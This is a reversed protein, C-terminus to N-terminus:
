LAKEDFRNEEEKQYSLLSLPNMTIHMEGGGEKKSNPPRNQRRCGRKM